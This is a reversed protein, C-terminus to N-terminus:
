ADKSDRREEVLSNRVYNGYGNSGRKLVIYVTKILIKLDLIFTLNNAYDVEYQFQEEWSPTLNNYLVEPVTLGGRVKHRQREIDTYYPLYEVLLSRPGIISIDGKLINILEPLEDLSSDRLFKGFTTIRKDDSLLNGNVEKKNNMSRFKYLMFIKEDKGVREQKFLIPFGMNIGVLLALILLLPSLVILAISSFIFDLIRKVYKRYM